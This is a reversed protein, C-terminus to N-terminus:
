LDQIKIDAPITMMIDIKMIDTMMLRIMNELTINQILNIIIEKIKLMHTVMIKIKAMNILIIELVIIRQHNLNLLLVM